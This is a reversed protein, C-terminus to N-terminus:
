PLARWYIGAWSNNGDDVAWVARPKGGADLAVAVRLYEGYHSFPLVTWSGARLYVVGVFDVAGFLTGDPAPLCFPTPLGGPLLPLNMQTWTAGNDSSTWEGLNRSDRADPAQGYLTNGLVAMLQINSQNFIQTWHKGGDSSAVIAQCTQASCGTYSLNLYVANSAGVAGEINIGQAGPLLSNLDIPTFSGGNASVRLSSQQSFSRYVSPGVWLYLYPGSWAAGDAPLTGQPILVAKWTKGGDISYHSDVYTPPGDSGFSGIYSNVVVDLPNTASVQLSCSAFQAPSFSTQWTQGGNASVAFLRHDPDNSAQGCLYGRQPSSQAFKVDGDYVRPTFATWGNGTPDPAFPTATPGPTLTVTPTGVRATSSGSTSGSAMHALLAALLAVVGVAVAGGAWARMAGISRITGNRMFDGGTLERRILPDADVARSGGLPPPMEIPSGGMRTADSGHRELPLTRVRANLRENDPVAIRWAAGDRLLRRHIERLPAPLQGEDEGSAGAQASDARNQQDSM